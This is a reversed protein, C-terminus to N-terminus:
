NNLELHVMHHIDLSDSIKAFQEIGPSLNLGEIKYSYYAAVLNIRNDCSTIISKDTLGRKFFSATEIIDQSPRKVRLEKSSCFFTINFVLCM